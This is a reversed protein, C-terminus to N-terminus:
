RGDGTLNDPNRFGANRFTLTEISESRLNRKRDRWHALFDVAEDLLDIVDGGRVQLRDLQDRHERLDDLNSQFFKLLDTGIEVPTRSSSTRTLGFNQLVTRPVEGDGLRQEIEVQGDHPLRLIKEGHSKTLDGRSIADQIGRPLDLLRELRDLTRGSKGCNLRAALRDRVDGEGEDRHSTQKLHRYCRALALDDLQQRMLNDFILDDVVEPAMVDTIEDHVVARITEWGLRKACEVRRHGRILTGDATCHIPEQQGRSELDAALEDLEAETAVPFFDHQRPHKKLSAVAVQQERIPTM